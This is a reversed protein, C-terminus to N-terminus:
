APIWGRVMLKEWHGMYWRSQKGRTPPCPIPKHEVRAAQANGDIFATYGSGRWGNGMSSRVVDGTEPWNCPGSADQAVRHVKWFLIQLIPEDSFASEYRVFIDDKEKLITGELM